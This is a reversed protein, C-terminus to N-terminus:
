VAVTSIFIFKSKKLEEIKRKDFDLFTPIKFYKGGREDAAREIQGVIAANQM